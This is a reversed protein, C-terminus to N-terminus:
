ITVTRQEMTSSSTRGLKHESLVFPLTLDLSCIYLLRRHHVTETMMVTVVLLLLLQRCRSQCRGLWRTASRCRSVVAATWRWWSLRRSLEGASQYTFSSERKIAKVSASHRGNLLSAVHQKWSPLQHFIIEHRKGICTNYMEKTTSTPIQSKSGAIECCFRWM